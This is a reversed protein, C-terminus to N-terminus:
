CLASSVTVCPPHADVVLVLVRCPPWPLGDRRFLYRSSDGDETSSAGEIQDSIEDSDETSRRLEKDELESLSSVLFGSGTFRM